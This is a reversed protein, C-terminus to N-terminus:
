DNSHGGVDWEPPEAHLPVWTSKKAKQADKMTRIGAVVDALSKFEADSQENIMTLAFSIGAEFGEKWEKNSM